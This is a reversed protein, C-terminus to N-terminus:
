RQNAEHEPLYTTTINQIIHHYETRPEGRFPHSL